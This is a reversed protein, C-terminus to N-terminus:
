GPGPHHRGHEYLFPWLRAYDNKEMLLKQTLRSFFNTAAAARKNRL